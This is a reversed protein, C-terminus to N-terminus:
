KKLSVKADASCVGTESVTGTVKSKTVKLDLKITADLEPDPKFSMRVKGNKVKNSGETIKMVKSSSDYVQIRLMSGYGCSAPVSDLKIYTLKSSKVKASAKGYNFDGALNTAKGKYTVTKAKANATSTLMALGAIAVLIFELSRRQIGSVTM